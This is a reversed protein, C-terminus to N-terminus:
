FFEVGRIGGLVITIVELSLVLLIIGLSVILLFIRWGICASM